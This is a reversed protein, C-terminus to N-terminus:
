YAKQFLALFDGYTTHRPNWRNYNEEICFRAMEPFKDETAGIDRLREPIRLDRCLSQIARLAEAAADLEPMGNVFRGM